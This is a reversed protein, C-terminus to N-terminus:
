KGSGNGGTRGKGANNRDIYPPREPYVTPHEPARRANQTGGQRTRPDQRNQAGTQPRQQRQPYQGPRAPRGDQAGAGGPGPQPRRIADPRSQPRVQQRMRSRDTSREQPMSVYAGRETRFHRRRAGGTGVYRPRRIFAFVTVAAIVGAAIIVVILLIRLFRGFPFASEDKASSASDTGPAATGAPTSGDWGSVDVSYIGELKGLLADFTKKVGDGYNKAAFDPELYENNIKQLDADTLSDKLGPGQITWYDNGDISLLILIGNNKGSAGLKWENFIELAYESTTKGDTNKVCVTEMRAGTLACLAKARANIDAQVDDPIVEAEDYVYVDEQQVPIASVSGALSFALIVCAILSLVASKREKKNVNMGVEIRQKLDSIPGPFAYGANSKKPHATAPAEQTMSGTM